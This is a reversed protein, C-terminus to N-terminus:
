HGHSAERLAERGLDTICWSKMVLYSSHRNEEVLGAVELRRCARLITPTSGGLINRYVYTAHGNYDCIAQLVEIDFAAREAKTLKTGM